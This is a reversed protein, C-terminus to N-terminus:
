MYIFVCMYVHMYAFMHVYVIFVMYSHLTELLGTFSLRLSWTM